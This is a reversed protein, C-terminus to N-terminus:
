PAAVRNYLKINSMTGRAGPQGGPYDSGIYLPTGPPIQLQGSYTSQGVLRGDVYLSALADGWTATVQHLEGPQWNISIGAGSETGTNDAFVFRLYQGNKTIEIRNEWENPSRLKVLSADTNDNGAWDGQIDFSITGSEGTLGGANPIALQADAAFKAGAESDFTIGEAIVPAAGKEPQLTGDLSLALVPGDDQTKNQKGKGPLNGLAVGGQVDALGTGSGEFKVAAEPASFRLSTGGGPLASSGSFGVTGGRRGTGYIGTASRGDRGSAAAAGRAASGPAGHNDAGSPGGPGTERASWGGHESFPQSAVSALRMRSTVSHGESRFHNVAIVTTILGCVGVIVAVWPRTM